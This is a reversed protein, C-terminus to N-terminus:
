LVERISISDVAGTFGSATAQINLQNNGSNATLEQVYTGPAVRTDSNVQTGGTFSVRIAGASVSAVVIEVRYTVGGVFPFSLQSISSFAATAAAVAQGGTVSWNSTTLWSAGSSFDGGVVLEAGYPSQARRSNALAMGLGLKM